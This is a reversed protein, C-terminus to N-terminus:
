IKLNNIIIKQEYENGRDNLLNNNVMDYQSNEAKENASSITM